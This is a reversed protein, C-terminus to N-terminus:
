NTLGLDFCSLSPNCDMSVLVQYFDISNKAINDIYFMYCDPPKIFCFDIFCFHTKNMM